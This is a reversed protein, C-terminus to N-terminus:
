ISQEPLYKISGRVKFCLVVGYSCVTVARNSRRIVRIGHSSAVMLFPLWHFSFVVDPPPQVVYSQYVTILPGIPHFPLMQPIAVCLDSTHGALLMDKDSNHHYALGRM